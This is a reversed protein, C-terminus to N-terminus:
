FPLATARVLHTALLEGIFILVGAVYLIGTASQTSRRNICDHAMYIFVAPIVLGVLWRTLIYLGHYGWLMYTPALRNTVIVGGVAFATRWAIVGGLITNLRRFPHITMKSATLYAHGLLMDMLCLGSMAAIGLASAYPVLFGRWLNLQQWNDPRLLLQGVFTAYFFALWALVQQTRRSALQVFALQALIAALTFITSILNSTPVVDRRLLFFLSLGGMALALIGALRLWNLTVAVPDSVAASLMIGGALLILFTEPV